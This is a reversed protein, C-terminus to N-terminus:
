LYSQQTWSLKTRESIKSNRINGLFTLSILYKLPDDIYGQLNKLQSETPSEKGDPSEWDKIREPMSKKSITKAAKDLSVKATVRAWKLIERNVKVKKAM